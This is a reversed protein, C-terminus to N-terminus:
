FESWLGIKQSKARVEIEGYHEFGKPLHEWDVRALGRELLEAAIDVALGKGYRIKALPLGDAGYVIGAATNDTTWTVVAVRQGELRRKVFDHAEYGLRTKAGPVSIGTLHVAFGGQFEVRCGGHVEAVVLTNASARAVLITLFAVVM